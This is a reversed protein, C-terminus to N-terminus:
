TAPSPLHRQHGNPDYSPRYEERKAESLKAGCRECAWFYHLVGSARDYSTRIEHFGEHSCSM